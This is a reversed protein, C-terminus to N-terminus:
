RAGLWNSRVVGISRPKKSRRMDQSSARMTEQKIGRARKTPAFWVRVQTGDALVVMRITTGDALTVVGNDQETAM